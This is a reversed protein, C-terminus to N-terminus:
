NQKHLMIDLIAANTGGMGESGLLGLNFLTKEVDADVIGDYGGAGIGNQALAACRIASSVSTAIKLACGPKAGDCVIGSIDAVMSNVGHCMQDLTGGMLQLLGCCCGIAAAIACGCLASLRGIYRKTHVTVLISLALARLTEERGKGTKEAVAILPVTATLGQNGSGATCMVPMECGSMRADAAAATMAIAYNGVGASILGNEEQLLISKGVQLGYDHSLGERAIRGNYEIIVDLCELEEIPVERAFAAIGALTMWDKGASAPAGDGAPSTEATYVTEGDRWLLTLGTHTGEIVASACHGEGYVRACLYIQQATDALMIEVENAELLRVAAERRAEDAGALVMLEQEPDACVAGLASAIGLGVMGTGPIGVGMGNKLIYKSVSLEVREVPRGLLKAAHACCLAAAGPETCGLAPTVEKKLVELYSQLTKEDM